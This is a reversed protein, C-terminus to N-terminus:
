QLGQVITRVNTLIMGIYTSAQLPVAALSDSYLQGAV